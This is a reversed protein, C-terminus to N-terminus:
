TYPASTSSRSLRNVSYWMYGRSSAGGRARAVSRRLPPVVHWCVFPADAHDPKSADEVEVHAAIEPMGLRLDRGQAIGIRRQQRPAAGFMRRREGGGVIGFEQAPIEVQDLDERRVRQVLRHRRRRQFGARM